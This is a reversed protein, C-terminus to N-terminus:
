IVIFWEDKSIKTLTIKKYVSCRKNIEWFFLAVTELDCPLSDRLGLLSWLRKQATNLLLVALVSSCSGQWWLGTARTPKVTSELARATRNSLETCFLSRDRKPNLSEDQPLVIHIDHCSGSCVQHRYLVVWTQSERCWSERSKIRLWWWRPGAWSGAVNFQPFFLM